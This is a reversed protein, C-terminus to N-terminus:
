AQVKEMPLDDDQSSRQLGLLRLGGLLGAAGLAVSGMTHLGALLDVTGLVVPCIILM